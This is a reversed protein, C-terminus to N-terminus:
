TPKHELGVHTSLSIGLRWILARLDQRMKNAGKEKKKKLRQPGLVPCYQQCHKNIMRREGLTLINSRRGGSEMEDDEVIQEM